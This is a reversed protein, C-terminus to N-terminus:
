HVKKCFPRNGDAVGSTPVNVLFTSKLSVRKHRPAAIVVDVNSHYNAFGMPLITNNLEVVSSEFPSIVLEAGFSFGFRRGPLM